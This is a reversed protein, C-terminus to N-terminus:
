RLSLFDASCVFRVADLRLLARPLSERLGELETAIAAIEAAGVAPNVKALASLREHEAGLDRQATDIARAIEADARARAIEECGKLMPPVIKAFFKRYRPADAPRLV